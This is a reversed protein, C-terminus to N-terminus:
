RYFDTSLIKEFWNDTNLTLSFFNLYGQ